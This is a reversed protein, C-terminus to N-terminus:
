EYYSNPKISHPIVIENYDSLHANLKYIFERYLIKEIEM